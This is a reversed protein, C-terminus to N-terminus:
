ESESDEHYWPAHLPQNFSNAYMFMGETDTVKFSQIFEDYKPISVNWNNLPQNFSSADRFMYTMYLVNSVNWNNLPQNFSRASCFMQLMDTVNSVNWNNLPQNFSEADEFMIPMFKVNSVNWKNLSQNFSTADKFMGGMNTVNSVNWDNLPQNFSRAGDFMGEMDTVKSVDWNNIEGYKKVIDKKRDGGALYDQVARRLTANTFPPILLPHRKGIKLVVDAPLLQLATFLEQQTLQSLRRRKVGGHLKKPNRPLPIGLEQLGTQLTSFRSRPLAIPPAPSVAKRSGKRTSLHRTTKM